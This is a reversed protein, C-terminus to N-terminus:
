SLTATAAITLTDILEDDRKSSSSRLVSSIAEGRMAQMIMAFTQDFRPHSSLQSGFLEKSMDSIRQGLMREHEILKVRLVEDTRAANWLEMSAAFLPGQFTSWLLELSRRLRDPTDPLSQAQMAVQESRQTLIERLAALLLEERSPFHHLLAGRSVGARQQVELTSTGSYGREVLCEITATVLRTQM